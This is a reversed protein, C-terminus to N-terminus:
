RVSVCVNVYVCVCVHVCVLVCCGEFDRPIHICRIELNEIRVCEGKRERALACECV